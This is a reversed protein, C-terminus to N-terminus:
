RVALRAISHPRVALGAKPALEFARAHLPTYLMTAVSDFGSPIM